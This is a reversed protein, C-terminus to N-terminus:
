IMGFVFGSELHAMFRFTLALVLFIRYFLLPFFIM